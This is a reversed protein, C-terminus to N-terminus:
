DKEETIFESMQNMIDDNTNQMKKYIRYAVFIGIVGGITGGVIGGQTFGRQFDGMPM